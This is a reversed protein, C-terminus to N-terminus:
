AASEEASAPLVGLFGGVFGISAQSMEVGTQIRCGRKRAFQLLPTVAPVTVADCVLTDPALTALLTAPLPLPDQPQMGVPTVNVLLDLGGLSGCTTKVHVAPFDQAAIGAVREARAPDADLVTLSALGAECLAYAIASGAGGAGIVLAKRGAPDFGHAKAAALFGQGDVHDGHLKGDAARRVVNVAGLARARATLVDAHGAFAQKHPVTVVTGHLNPSARLLAVFASLGEPLVDFPVMALDQRREEFLPNLNSPMRVQAIPHGVIGILQTTGSIM